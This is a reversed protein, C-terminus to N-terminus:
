LLDFKLKLLNLSINESNAIQEITFGEYDELITDRILYEAAFINAEREVKCTLMLTKNKMFYCNTRKHLISHGIEHALVIIREYENLASNIFIVKNRRAYFYSGATSGLPKIILVVNLCEALEYINNTKYKKILKQVINKIKFHL